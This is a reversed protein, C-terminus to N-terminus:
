REDDQGELLDFIQVRKNFSDAVYIRNNRDIHIGAPLWFKGPEDGEEGFAMLIQGEKDFIQINEFQRDIVYINGSTDTAIGSPHAFDGPRDGQHGFTRVFKGDYTFVQIRYNLTDSIWLMGDKDVWLHTPYNFTGPKVGRSGIQGIVKGNKGFVKITHGATDAVYVREERAFYGIGSPRKLQKEGFSFLFGGKRDFVCVKHLMSDAVYVNDDVTTIGVPMSLQEDKGINRIQKYERTDLDFMHVAAGASDTVFLRNDHGMTVAYPSILVGMKEKGFLLEGLSQAWSIEKKLDAEVSIAGVYEIRAKEPYGPWVFPVDLSLFLAGAPRGCGSCFLLLTFYLALLLRIIM